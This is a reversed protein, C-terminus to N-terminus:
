IYADIELVGDNKRPAGTTYTVMQVFNTRFVELIEQHYLKKRCWFPGTLGRSNTYSTRM